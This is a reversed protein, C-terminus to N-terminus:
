GDRGGANVGAQVPPWPALFCVRRNGQLLMTILSPPPLSWLWSMGTPGAPMREKLAEAEQARGQKSCSIPLLPRISPLAWLHARGASM